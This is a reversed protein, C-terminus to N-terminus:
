TKPYLINVRSQEKTPASGAAGPVDEKLTKGVKLMFRIVEPHNGVGHDELLQKLEPTGYTGISRQAIKVSEDFKDGGFESDNKASTVWDTMLQNFADAQKASGAQVQKAYFDVVKQAKAQSLGMEKFLPNADALTTEDLDMGEPLTFDAYTDPPLDSDEAGADNAAADVIVQAAAREEATSNEDGADLISQAATVEAAADATGQDGDDTTGTNTLVTGTDVTGADDGTDTQVGETAADSMM